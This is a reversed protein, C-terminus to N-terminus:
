ARHAVKRRPVHARRAAGPDLLGHRVPGVLVPAPQDDVLRRQPARLARGRGGTPPDAVRTRVPQGLDGELSEDTHMPDGTPGDHMPSLGSARYLQRYGPWRDPDGVAAAYNGARVVGWGPVTTLTAFRSAPLLGAMASEAQAIQDDLQTLLVLDTALVQRAVEADPCPLANRAAMLLREAVPKRVQLSRTAAFRIFRAEGLGALRGPDAFHEAVLRGVKTGLVDPLALTLGPFSRDLQGLLQNKTATRTAVRRNRHASWATLEGIVREHVTM